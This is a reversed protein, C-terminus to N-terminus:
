KKPQPLDKGRKAGKEVLWEALILANNEIVYDLVSKGKHDLANIDAGNDILYQLFDTQNQKEQIPTKAYMFITTGKDNTANIDAGHDILLKAIEHKENYCAMVLGTWGEKSKIDIPYENQEIFKGVLELDGHVCANFFDEPQIMLILKNVYLHVAGEVIFIVLTILQTTSNLILCM